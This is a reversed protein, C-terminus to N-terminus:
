AILNSQSDMSVLRNVSKTRPRPLRSNGDNRKIVPRKNQRSAPSPITKEKSYIVPPKIKSTVPNYTHNRPTRFPIPSQSHPRPQSIGSPSRRVELFRNRMRHIHGHSTKAITSDQDFEPASNIEMCKENGGASPASKRRPRPVPKVVRHREEDTVLAAALGDLPSLIEPTRPLIVPRPKGEGGGQVDETSNLTTNSRTLAQLIVESKSRNHAESSKKIRQKLTTIDSGVRDLISHVKKINIVVDGFKKKGTEDM